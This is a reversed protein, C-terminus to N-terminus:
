GEAALRLIQPTVVVDLLAIGLAILQATGDLFLLAVAAVAIGSTLGYGWRVAPNDLVM